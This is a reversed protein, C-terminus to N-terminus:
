RCWSISSTLNNSGFNSFLPLFELNNMCPYCYVPFSWVVNAINSFINLLLLFFLVFFISSYILGFLEHFIQKLTLCAVILKQIEQCTWKKSTDDLSFALCNIREWEILTFAIQKSVRRKDTSRAYFTSKWCKRDSLKIQFIVSIWFSGGPPAVPQLQSYLKALPCFM